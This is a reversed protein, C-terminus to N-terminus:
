LGLKRLHAMGIEHSSGKLSHRARRKDAGRLDRMAEEVMLAFGRCDYARCIAPRREYITCGAEELYICDRNERVALAVMPVGNLPNLVTRTIYAQHDDETQL